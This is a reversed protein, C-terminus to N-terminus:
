GLHSDCCIRRLRYSNYRGLRYIPNTVDTNSVMSVFSVVLSVFGVRFERYESAEGITEM